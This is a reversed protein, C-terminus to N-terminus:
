YRPQGPSFQQQVYQQGVFQQPVFQQQPFPQQFGPQMPFAQQPPNVLVNRNTETFFHQPVNVLHERNVNVIPHIVPQMRPIFSDRVRFQPPCVIPQAAPMQHCGCMGGHMHHGCSSCPRM